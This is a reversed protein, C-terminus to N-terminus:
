QTEKLIMDAPSTSMPRVLLKIGNVAHTTIKLSVEPEPGFTEIQRNRVIESLAVEIETLAFQAAICLRPGSGFPLFGDLNTGSDPAFREPRFMDPQDWLRRHRHMAFVAIMAVQGPKLRQGEIETKCIASRVMIPAPPYLRLSEQAVQRALPREAGDASARAEARLREQWEPHRALLFLGWGIARATTEFGAPMFGLINDALPGHGRMLAPLDALEDPGSARKDAIAAALQRMRQEAKTRGTGRYWDLWKEPMPLLDLLGFRTMDEVFKPIDQSIERGRAPDLDPLISGALMAAVIPGIEVDADIPQDTPWQDIATRTAQEFARRTKAVRDPRFAPAVARRQQAWDDGEAAALGKGWVRRMMTRLQKNRGFRADKDRLIDRVTEPRTIVLPGGPIKPPAVWQDYIDAPIVSAPDSVVGRLYTTLRVPTESLKFFPPRESKDGQISM